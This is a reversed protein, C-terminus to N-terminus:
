IEKLKCIKRVSVVEIDKNQPLINEFQNFVRKYFNLFLQYQSIESKDYVPDCSFVLTGHLVQM